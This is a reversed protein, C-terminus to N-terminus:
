SRPAARVVRRELTVPGPVTCGKGSVFDCDEIRLCGCRMGTTLAQRMLEARAVLADLEEIKRTALATWRASPRVNAEFGHFLTKIEAVSFGADQAFRITQLLRVVDTAYRRHGNLRRPVPLLGVSEYYRVASTRLGTRRAVEGITLEGDDGPKQLVVRPM